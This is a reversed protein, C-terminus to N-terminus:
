ERASGAYILRGVITTLNLAKAYRSAWVQLGVAPYAM